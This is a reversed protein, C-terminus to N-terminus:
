RSKGLTLVKMFQNAVDESNYIDIPKIPTKLIGSMEALIDAPPVGHLLDNEFRKLTQYREKLKQICNILKNCAGKTVCMSTLYEETVEMMQNYSLHTFIDEYKHLRLGKLWSKMNSMGAQESVFPKASPNLENLRTESGSLSMSSRPSTSVSFSRQKHMAFFLNETSLTAAGLLTDHHLAGTTLSNSRRTKMANHDNLIPMCDYTFHINSRELDPDFDPIETGNKSFSVHHDDTSKTSNLDSSYPISQTDWLNENSIIKLEILSSTSSVSPPAVIQWSNSNRKETHISNRIHDQLM